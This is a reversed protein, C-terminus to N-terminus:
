TRVALSDRYTVIFDSGGSRDGELDCNEEEM